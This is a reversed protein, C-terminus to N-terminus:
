RSWLDGIQDRLRDLARNRRQRIRERSLGLERGIEAGSKDLSWLITRDIPDLKLVLADLRDLVVTPTSDSEPVVQRELIKDVLPSGAQSERRLRRQKKRLYNSLASRIYWIAFTSFKGREEDFREAARFLLLMCEQELEERDHLTLRTRYKNLVFHVLGRHEYTMAWATEADRRVPQSPHAGGRSPWTM